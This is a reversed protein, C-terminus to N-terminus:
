GVVGGLLWDDWLRPHQPELPGLLKCLVGWNYGTRFGYRESAFNTNKKGVLTVIRSTMGGEKAGEHGM